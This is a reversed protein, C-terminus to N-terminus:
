DIKTYTYGDLVESRGPCPDNLMVFRLSSGNLTWTYAGTGACVNSLSFEIRNGAIAIVGSATNQGRVIGYSGVGLTLTVRQDTGALITQWSGDVPTPVYVPPPTPPATPPATPSADGSGGCGALVFGILFLSALLYSSVRTTKKFRGGM